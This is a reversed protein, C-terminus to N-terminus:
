SRKINPPAALGRQIDWRRVGERVMLPNKSPSRRVEFSNKGTDLRCALYRFNKAGAIGGTDWYRLGLSHFANLCQSKQSLGFIDLLPPTVQQFSDGIAEPGIARFSSEPNMLPSFSRSSVNRLTVHNCFANHKVRLVSSSHLLTYCMKVSERVSNKKALSFRM